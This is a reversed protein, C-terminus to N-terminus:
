GSKTKSYFNVKHTISPRLKDTNFERSTIKANSPLLQPLRANKQWAIVPNKDEGLEEQRGKRSRRPVM